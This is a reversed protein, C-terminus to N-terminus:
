DRERMPCRTHRNAQSHERQLFFWHFFFRFIPGVTPRESERSGKETEARKVESVADTKKRQEKM